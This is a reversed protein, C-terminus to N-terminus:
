VIDEVSPEACCLPAEPFRYEDVGVGCLPQRIQIVLSSIACEITRDVKHPPKKQNWEVPFEMKIETM